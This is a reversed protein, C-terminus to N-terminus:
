DNELTINPTFDYRPELLAGAMGIVPATSSPNIVDIM